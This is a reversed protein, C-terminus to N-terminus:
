VRRNSVDYYIFPAKPKHDRPHPFLFLRWFVSLLLSFLRFLRLLNLNCRRPSRLFSSFTISGRQNSRGLSEGLPTPQAQFGQSYPTTSIIGKPAFALYNRDPHPYRIAGSQYYVLGERVLARGRTARTSRTHAMRGNKNKPDGARKRTGQM